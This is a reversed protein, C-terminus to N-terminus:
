LPQNMVSLNKQVLQRAYKKKTLLSLTHHNYHSYLLVDM